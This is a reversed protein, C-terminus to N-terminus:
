PSLKKLENHYGVYLKQRKTHHGMHDQDASQCNRYLQGFRRNGEAQIPSSEM